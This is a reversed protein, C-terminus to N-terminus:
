SHPAWYRRPWWRGKGTDLRRYHALLVAFVSSLAALYDGVGFRLWM